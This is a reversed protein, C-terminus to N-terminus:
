QRDTGSPYGRQRTCAIDTEQVGYNGPLQAQGDCLLMDRIGRRVEHVTRADGHVGGICLVLCSYGISYLLLRPCM